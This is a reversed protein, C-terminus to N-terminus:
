VRCWGTDGASGLFQRDTQKKINNINTIDASTLMFESVFVDVFVKM